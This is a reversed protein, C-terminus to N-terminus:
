VAVLASNSEIDCLRDSLDGYDLGRGTWARWMNRLLRKTALLRGHLDARKLTWDPHLESALMKKASYLLRYELPKRDRDFNQKVIGEGILYAISRRRPSYGFASWEEAPLKGQRGSKWTSGMMTKGNFTYPALGLRRWVKAPNSYDDFNGVEGVVVAAMQTSIGRQNTQEIWSCIPLSELLRVMPKEISSQMKDFGDIGIWTARIVDAYIHDADSKVVAKVVKAAEDFAALREKEPLGAHYGSSTAVVAVLRNFTKIRSKIIVTRKRQLRQLEECVERIEM